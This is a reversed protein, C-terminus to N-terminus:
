DSITAVVSAKLGDFLAYILGAIYFFDRHYYLLVPSGM